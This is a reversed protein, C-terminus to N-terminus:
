TAQGVRFSLEPRCLELFRCGRCTDPEDALDWAERPLPRNAQRDLDELYETMDAVSQGVREILAHLDETQIRFALTDPEDLYELYLRVQEPPIGHRERAWLAYLTVQDLHHPHRRGSKWDRIHWIGDRVHVYDPIAYITLGEYVFHEPTGTTALAVEEEPRVEALDPLVHREFNVLCNRVAQAVEIVRDRDATSHVEPYYHEHLCALGKPDTRWGGQLSQNWQERLWPRAVTQFADEASAPRGAQHETLLWRLAREVAQGRLAHRTTMKTLRYATRCEPSAQSSWGGWMGYRAWYRQRRCTEFEQGASHSWTFQNRLPPM